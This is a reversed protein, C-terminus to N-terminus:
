ASLAKAKEAVMSVTNNRNSIRGKLAVLADPSFLTKHENWVRPFVVVEISGSFDALNLFAMIENKKTIITKVEQLIGAVVVTMGEKYEEKARRINVERKELIHRFKDLPHGSVYLGLLEKEWGLKEEQTAPPSDVLRLGVSAPLASFLSASSREASEKGYQLLLEMNAFLAGREGFEDMAGSKILAELAKKNLNKDKVRELFDSLNKFQGRAAREAIISQAVGEGFNKITTM